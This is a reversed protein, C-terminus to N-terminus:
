GYNVRFQEFPLVTKGEIEKELSVCWDEEDLSLEYFRRVFHANIEEISSVGYEDLAEKEAEFIGEGDDNMLLDVEWWNRSEWELILDLLTKPVVIEVSWDGCGRFREFGDIDDNVIPDM